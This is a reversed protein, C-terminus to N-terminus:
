TWGVRRAEAVAAMQSSVALKKLVGRIQTRVTAESVFFRRAIEEAALGEVLLSFVERERPTLREFPELRQKDVARRVRMAALLDQRRDDRMVIRGQIAALIAGLLEEFGTTKPLVALAGLELTTGLRVVDGSGSVVLVRGGLRVLGAVLAEGGLRGEGLDLDLLVVAPLVAAAQDLVELGEGLEAFHVDCGEATLAVGLSEALLEHDEVILVRAQAFTTLPGAPPEGWTLSTM